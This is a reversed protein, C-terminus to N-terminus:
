NWEHHATIQRLDHQQKRWIVGHLSALYLSIQRLNCHKEAHNNGM